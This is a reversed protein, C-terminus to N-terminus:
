YAMGAMLFPHSILGARHKPDFEVRQFPADAPLDVGYFMALRGNLYISNTSLLERFDSKKSWVIDEILLDLSTRLDSAFHEDFESYLEKSKTLDNFHDYQLWQHFFARVKSRTRYNKVMRQAQTKIQSETKLKGQAALALLKKDPISDWLCLAMWEAVRYQQQQPNSPDSIGLFLFRPSKLVLLIVRRTAVLPDKVREFQRDIIAAKLQKSLPRRFARTAFTECFNHLIETKKKPDKGLKALADIQQIVKDAVEIAAYTTADNWEKSVSVGREYGVSKDDPPFPTEVILVAPYDEPSLNRSPILQESQHPPKWKLQATVKEETKSKYIEMYIPYVRGGTLFITKRYEKQDGSKVRANILPDDADNLWLQGANDTVMALDYFGTEPALLGGRWTSTFKEFEIKEDPKSKDDFSVNVVSEVKELLINKKNLGRNKYYRAKLGRKESINRDWRFSGVLDAISNRYQRNTLRSFAVHAPKNRAQATISYFQYHIHAAVTAAEKGVCTEPKEEPMTEEIYKALEKISLDGILSEPYVTEVGEGHKGHCKACKQLYIQEGQKSQAYLEFPSTFIAICSLM